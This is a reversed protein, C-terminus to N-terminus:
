SLAQQRASDFYNLITREGPGFVKKPNILDLLVVEGKQKVRQATPSLEMLGGLPAKWANFADSDMEITEVDSNLLGKSVLCFSAWGTVLRKILTLDGQQAQMMGTIFEALLLDAGNKDAFASLLEPVENPLFLGFDSVEITVSIKEIKKTKM